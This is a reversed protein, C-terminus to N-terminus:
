GIFALTRAIITMNCSSLFYESMASSIAFLGILVLFVVVIQM